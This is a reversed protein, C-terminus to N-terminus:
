REFGFSEAGAPEGGRTSPPDGAGGPGGGSSPPPPDPPTPTTTPAPPPGPQPAAETTTMAPSSVPAVQPTPEREPEAQTSEPRPAAPPETRRPRQHDVVGPRRVEAPRATRRHPRPATEAPVGAASRSILPSRPSSTPHAPAPGEGGGPRLALLLAAAGAALGAPV